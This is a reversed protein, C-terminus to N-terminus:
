WTISPPKRPSSRCRREAGARARQRHPPRRRHRRLGPERRDGGRVEGGLPPLGRRAGHRRPALGRDPVLRELAQGHPIAGARRDADVPEPGSAPPEGPLGRRTAPRRAGAREPGVGARRRRRRAGAHHRRRGHDGRVARRRRDAGRAGGGGGRSARVGRRVLVGARHVPGHHQQRGHRATGRRLRSGGAAPRAALDAAPASAGRPSGRGQRHRDGAGGPRPGNRRGPHGRWARARTGADSAEKKAPM